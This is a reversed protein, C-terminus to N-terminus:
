AGKHLQRKYKMNTVRAFLYYIVTSYFLASVAVGLIFGAFHLPTGEYFPNDKTGINNPPIANVIIPVPWLLIKGLITNNFKEALSIFGYTVASGCLISIAALKKRTWIM